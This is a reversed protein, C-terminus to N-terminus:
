LLTWTYRYDQWARACSHSPTVGISLAHAGGGERDSGGVAKAGVVVPTAQCADVACCALRASCSCIPDMHSLLATECNSCWAM